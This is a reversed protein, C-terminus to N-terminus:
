YSCRLRLAAAITVLEYRRLDMKGRITVILARWAALAEPRLSSAPSYNPVYGLAKLDADYLEKLLGSAEQPPVARVFAM